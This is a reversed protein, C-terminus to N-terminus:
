AAESQLSVRYDREQRRQLRVRGSRSLDDIAAFMQSWDLGSRQLLHEFTLAGEQRLIGILLAATLTVGAPDHRVSKM